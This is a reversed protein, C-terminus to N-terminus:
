RPYEASFRFCNVRRCSTRTCSPASPPCWTSLIPPSGPLILIRTLLSFSTGIYFPSRAVVLWCRGLLSVLSSKCCLLFCLVSTQPIVERCGSTLCTLRSAGRRSSSAPPLHPSFFLPASTQRLVIL